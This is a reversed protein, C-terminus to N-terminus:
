LFSPKMHADRLATDEAWYDKHEVYLSKARNRFGLKHKEGDAGGPVGGCHHKQDVM